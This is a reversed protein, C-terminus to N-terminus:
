GFLVALGPKETRPSAGNKEIEYAWGPWAANRGGTWRLWRGLRRRVRWLPRQGAPGDTSSHRGHAVVPRVLAVPDVTAARLALRRRSGSSAVAPMRKRACYATLWGYLAPFYRIPPAPDTAPGATSM